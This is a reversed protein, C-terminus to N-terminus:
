GARIADGPRLLGEELSRRMNAYSATDVDVAFTSVSQDHTWTWRNDQFVQYQDRGYDQYAPASPMRLYHARQKVHAALDMAAPHAPRAGTVIVEEIVKAAATRDVVDAEVEPGPQKVLQVVRTERESNSEVPEALSQDDTTPSHCGIVLGALSIFVLFRFISM